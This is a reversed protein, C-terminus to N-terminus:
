IEKRKQRYDSCYASHCERHHAHSGSIYLNAPNDYKKCVWCKRWSAHGCARYARERQHLLQHYTPNECIVFITNKNKRGFPHHIVAKLPLQKKLINEAITIHKLVYGNSRSRPHDPRREIEYGEHYVPRNKRKDHNMIFRLPEGMVWGHKVHNQKSISTKQGCGCQCYGYPIKNTKKEIGISPNVSLAGELMQSEQTGNM